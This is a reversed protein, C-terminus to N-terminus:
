DRGTPHCRYCARSEWLYGSVGRHASNMSPQDHAHCDTCTFARFNTADTHCQACPLAHRGSLPFFGDHPFRAPSWGTADHCAECRTVDPFGTHDIRARRLAPEHCAVCASATGEYRGSTHCSACTAGAHRGVLPWFAGHDFSAPAWGTPAHCRDCQTRMATGTHPPHPRRADLTGTHCRACEPSADRFDGQATRAHCQVCGLVAHPGVLPLRTRGHDLLTGDPTWTRPTHCRECSAGLQGRHRDEHCRNCQAMTPMPRRGTHCRACPVAAHGGVLPARALAHDFAGLTGVPAWGSADHCRTCDRTSAALARARASASADTGGHPSEHCRVCDTGPLRYVVAAGAAPAPSPRHCGACGTTAHAGQLPFRTRAHDFGPAPSFRADRHCSACARGAFQGAHTDRHCAGCDAPTGVFRVPERPAPAAHCRTCAANHADTLAFGTRAHAAADFGSPVWGDVAHCTVCGGPNRGASFFQGAHVDAHCGACAVDARRFGPSRPASPHCSQCAVAAHAGALPFRTRAHDAADYRVPRWGEVAHCSACAGRDSRADLEGQHPDRHCDRCADHAVPRFRRSASVRPNHCRDCAVAVHAGRLPYATRDHFAREPAAMARTQHTWATTDHCHECRTGLSPRHADDHCAGCAREVPRDLRPGHCRACPPTAHAASLAFRGQAHTARDFTLDRWASETHCGECARRETMQAGHPDRHCDVCRGFILGRFSPPETTNTRTHCRDCAVRAHAGHLRFRARSHDFGQSAARWSTENHCQACRTGLSPSHRDAHCSVCARSLGLFTHGREAAPMRQVAPDTQYRPIHCQRCRLPAHADRLPYATGRAHDFRSQAGGPWRIISADAGQHDVHCRECPQGAVTAHFGARAAIRAGLATHCSLCRSPEVRHGREHCRVCGNLNDVAAHGQHLPGPSLQQAVALGAILAVLACVMVFLRTSRAIV